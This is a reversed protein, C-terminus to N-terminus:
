NIVGTNSCAHLGGDGQEAGDVGADDGSALRVAAQPARAQPPRGLGRWGDGALRAAVGLPRDGGVQAALLGRLLGGALELHASLKQAQQCSQQQECHRHQNMQQRDSVM